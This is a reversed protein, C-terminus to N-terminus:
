ENEIRLKTLIQLADATQNEFGGPASEDTEFDFGAWRYLKIAKHSWTQTPIYMDCDGEIEVMLNIGKSIIAKGLGLGQYQPKVAVWHMFPHRRNGTYNWWATFTAIKEGNKNQIFITRRKVETQYPVYNTKYYDVADEVKDFELVSTEIEGWALEDGSQYTVFDFEKKLTAQPISTGAKRKLIVRFYELSKDLM